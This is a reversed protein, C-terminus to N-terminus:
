GDELLWRDNPPPKMPLRYLGVVALALGAVNLPLLITVPDDIRDFQFLCSTMALLVMASTRALFGPPRDQTARRGEILVIRVYLAAITLGLVLSLLRFYNAVLIVAPDDVMFGNFPYRTDAAALARQPLTM